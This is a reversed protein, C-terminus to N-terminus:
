RRLPGSLMRALSAEVVRTYEGPEVPMGRLVRDGVSLGDGLEEEEEADALDEEEAVALPRYVAGLGAVYAEVGPLEDPDAAASGPRLAARM